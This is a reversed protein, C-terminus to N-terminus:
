SGDVEAAEERRGSKREEPVMRTAPGLSMVDNSGAVCAGQAGVHEQGVPRRETTGATRDQPWAPKTLAFFNSPRSWQIVLNGSKLEWRSIKLEGREWPRPCFDLIGEADCDECCDKEM